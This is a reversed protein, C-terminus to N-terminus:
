IYYMVSPRLVLGHEIAQHRIEMGIQNLYGSQQHNVIDIAAITGMVRLRTLQPYKNIVIGQRYAAGVGVTCTKSKPNSFYYLRGM